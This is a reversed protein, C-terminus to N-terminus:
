PPRARPHRKEADQRSAKHHDPPADHARDPRAPLLPDRGCGVVTDMEWHGYELRGEAEPPRDAISKGARNTYAMRKGCTAAKGKGERKYPLSKRTIGLLGSAVAYYLSRVCPVGGLGERVMVARAAYPSLHEGVVLAEFRAAIQNTLRMRPGKDQGRANADQQGAEASYANFWREQSDKNAVGGRFYERRVTTRAKGMLRGLEAFNIRKGRPWKVRILADMRVRQEYTFHKGGRGKRSSDEQGM